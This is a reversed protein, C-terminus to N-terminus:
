KWSHSLVLCFILMRNINSKKKKLDNRRLLTNCLGSIKNKDFAGIFSSHKWGTPLRSGGSVATGGQGDGSRCREMEMDLEGM